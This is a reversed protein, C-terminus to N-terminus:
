SCVFFKTALVRGLTSKFGDVDTGKCPTIQLESCLVLATCSDLCKLIEPDRDYDKETVVLIIPKSNSKHELEKARKRMTEVDKAGFVHHDSFDLRDVYRAGTRGISKVFADASGVASVCLVTADRLAELSVHSMANKVHFLHKPVMKSFFIPISNKFGHITNEVDILSQETMLDVNHVVAIDARELAALPERLPGLPLLNGNGWPNLGNVMVIELDRCLSWHQMGDDLIVSGLKESSTGAEARGHLLSQGFYTRLSSPNVCGYKEFFSAATAARNVGVGIKTPGGKVHRELM